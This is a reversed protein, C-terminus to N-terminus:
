PVAHAMQPGAGAQGATQAARLEWQTIAWYRDRRLFSSDSRETAADEPHGLRFLFIQQLKQFVPTRFCGRRLLESRNRRPRLLLPLGGLGEGGMSEQKTECFTQSMDM